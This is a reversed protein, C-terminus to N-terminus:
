ARDKDDSKTAPRAEPQAEGVPDPLRLTPPVVAPLGVLSTPLYAAFVSAGEDVAVRVLDGFPRTSEIRVDRGAFVEVFFERRLVVSPRGGSEYQRIEISYVDGDSAGHLVIPLLDSLARLRAATRNVNM